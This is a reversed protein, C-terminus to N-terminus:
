PKAEPAPPNGTEQRDGPGEGSGLCKSAQKCWESCGLDKRPNRVEKRCGPCLRFPEDKWFEIEVGCHPCPSLCIDEPRWYRMDQGPCRSEPTM